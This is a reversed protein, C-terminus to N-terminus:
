EAAVFLGKQKRCWELWASGSTDDPVPVSDDIFPLPRYAILNAEVSGKDFGGDRIMRLSLKFREFDNNCCFLYMKYIRNATIEFDDLIRLYKFLNVEGEDLLETIVGYTGPLVGGKENACVKVAYDIITADPPLTMFIKGM